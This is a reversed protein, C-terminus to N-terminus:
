LDLEQHRIDSYFTSKQEAKETPYQNLIYIHFAGYAVYVSIPHTTENIDTILAPCPVLCKYAWSRYLHRPLDKKQLKSWNGFYCTSTIKRYESAAFNSLLCGCGEWNHVQSNDPINFILHNYHNIM